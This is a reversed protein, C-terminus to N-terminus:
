LRKLITPLSNVNNVIAFPKLRKAERRTLKGTLVAVCKVRARKCMIIDYDADGIYLIESPKVKFHKMVKVLTDPYPKGHKVDDAAVIYDFLRRFGNAKMWLLLIKRKNSTALVVDYNRSVNKVVSEAGNIKKFRKAYLKSSTHEIYRKLFLKPNKPYLIKAINEYPLGMSSNIKKNDVKMGFSKVIKKWAKLHIGMSNVLTGDYDFMVVRIM